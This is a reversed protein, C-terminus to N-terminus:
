ITYLEGGDVQLATGTIYSARESALFAVAAEHLLGKKPKRGFVSDSLEITGAPEGKSNLVQAEM